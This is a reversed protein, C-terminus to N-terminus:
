FLRGNTIDDKKEGRVIRRQYTAWEAVARAM